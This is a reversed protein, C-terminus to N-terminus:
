VTKMRKSEHLHIDQISVNNDNIMSEFRLKNILSVNNPKALLEASSTFNNNSLLILKFDLNFKDDFYKKAAAIEQVGTNGILDKSQKAQILYNENDKFAVVDVGKDNSYPTLHTKFGQKTYLAAVFAEFLHPQLTAVDRIALPKVSSSTNFGFVNNFTEEKNLEVQETPYLTSSALAKKRALLEDLILDFSTFENAVAMPYYVYVDKKQGIRYARDTAQEEKAPNWHRSYHIIHNAETVNLGVGAAIHSMIIVNFGHRSQYEDITQQRSLKMKGEDQKTSPTDGNIISARIRYYDYIVQKLMKQTDKRDAFVIAKENKNRVEELINLLIQLKASTQVLENSPYSLVQKDALYPHDSIDRIAQLCKLIVSGRNENDIDTNKAKEMEIKYRELQIMPMQKEIRSNKDDHKQPLDKAVDSKLRRKIFIGIKDRLTECLQKVDTESNKLPNQYEKAFDKTTGLLGSVSFDMICWLDVLTNEVPTGTMAIKFDAKLAKCASTILTGPTKIKQAEDLVVIAFDITGINLQYIRLTEYNTLIIQKCQLKESDETNHQKKLGYESDLTIMRLNKPAFFRDYENQWNELLSIPAVILYPKNNNKNQAHWEIFYLLQLTKGLGMDDALLCGSLEKLHLSQLWAIGEKQHEKLKVSQVLNPIEYLIHDIKDPLEKLETHELTEINEKIILVKDEIGTEINEIPNKPNEFQRNAIRVFKEAEDNPILEDKWKFSHQGNKQANHLEEEFEHLETPNKFHIDKTGSNTKIKLGPIWESKYPCVFPYFKPRYAGIEIVRDSYFESIDVVEDDINEDNFLQNPNDIIKKITTKDRVKRVDKIKKFIKKQNEDIPIRITKGENDTVNYVDNITSFLDFKKLFNGSNEFGLEPIIELTDNQYLFNIKIKEPQYVNENELYADLLSASKKSLSKIDAFHKLNKGFTREKEPLNNFEELAICVLYQNESLLYKRDGIEVIGDTRKVPLQNGHPIFDFFGYRFRFSNENLQGDSEIYIEYPYHDPLALIKKDIDSLRLVGLTDIECTDFTYIGLGNDVFENLIFLQSLYIDHIESWKSVPIKMGTEDLISFLFVSDYQWSFM